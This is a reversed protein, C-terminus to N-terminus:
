GLRTSAEIQFHAILGSLQNMQDNLRIATRAIQAIRDASATSIDSIALVRRAVEESTRSQEDNATAMQNVQFVTSETDRVIEGLSAGARDALEIGTEVEATGRQIASVAEHTETQVTRVMETIKQTAGSTREALKRVEDAV